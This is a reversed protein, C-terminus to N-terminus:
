TQGIKSKNKVPPPPPSSTKGRPSPPPAGPGPGWARAGVGVGPPWACSANYSLLCMCDCSRKLQGNMKYRASTFANSAKRQTGRHIFRPPAMENRWLGGYNLKLHKRCDADSAVPIECSLSDFSMTLFRTRKCSWAEKPWFGYFKKSHLVALNRSIQQKSARRHSLEFFEAFPWTVKTRVAGYVSKVKEGGKSYSVIHHGIGVSEFKLGHTAWSVAKLENRDDDKVFFDIDDDHAIPKGARYAGLLQGGQLVVSPIHRVLACVLSLLNFLKLQAGHDLAFARMDAPPTSKNNLQARAAKAEGGLGSRRVADLYAAPRKKCDGKAMGGKHGAAKLAASSCADCKGRSNKEGPHGCDEYKPM